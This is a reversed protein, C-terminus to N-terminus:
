EQKSDENKHLTDQRKHMLRLFGDKLRPLRLYLIVFYIGGILAASSLCILATTSKSPDYIAIAVWTAGLLIVFCITMAVVGQRSVTGGYFGKDRFVIPSLLMAILSVVIILEAALLAFDKIM